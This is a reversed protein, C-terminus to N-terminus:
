ERRDTGSERIPDPMDKLARRAVADEREDRECADRRGRERADDIEGDTGASGLSSGRLKRRPTTPSIWFRVLSSYGLSCEVAHDCM